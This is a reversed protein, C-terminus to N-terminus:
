KVGPSIIAWSEPIPGRPRGGPRLPLRPFLPAASGAWGSEQFSGASATGAPLAPNRGEAAAGWGEPRAASGPDPRWTAADGLAPNGRLGAGRPRSRPGPGRSRGGQPLLSTPPTPPRRRPASAGPSLWIGARPPSAPAGRRLQLSPPRVGPSPAFPLHQTPAAGAGPLRPPSGPLSLLWGTLRRRGRRLDSKAGSFSGWSLLSM